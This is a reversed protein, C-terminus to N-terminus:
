SFEDEDIRALNPCVFRLGGPTTMAIPGQLANIDPQRAQPEPRPEFNPILLFFCTLDAPDFQTPSKDARLEQLRQKVAAM